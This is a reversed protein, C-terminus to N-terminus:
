TDSCLPLHSDTLTEASRGGEEGGGGDIGSNRRTLKGTETEKETKGVGPRGTGRSWPLGEDGDGSRFGRIEWGRVETFELRPVSPSFVTRYEQKRQDLCTQRRRLCGLPGIRVPVNGSYLLGSLSRLPSRTNTTQRDRCPHPPPVFSM